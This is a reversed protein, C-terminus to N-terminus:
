NYPHYSIYKVLYNYYMPEHVNYYQVYILYYGFNFGNNFLHKYILIILIFIQLYNSLFNFKNNNRKIVKAPLKCIDMLQPQFRFREM